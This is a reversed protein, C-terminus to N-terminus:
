FIFKLSFQEQRATGTGVLSANQGAITQGIEGFQHNVAQGTPDQADPACGPGPTTVPFVVSNCIGNSPNGFNPHNFINFIDARFQVTVRENAHFNKMLSFDGQFFGPARLSNRGANGLGVGPDGDFAPDVTYANVNYSSFPWAAGSLRTPQGTLDPRVTLGFFGPVLQPNVPGGSRAQVISSLQWGGLVGRVLANSGTMNPLSYVVSGTLNHRIDWDGSGRDLNPNSPDSFANFVNVMDDIEHSWTYNVEYNLRSTNHRLQVQLAHYSSNLIDADVNENAFGSYPRGSQTLVNAPNANLASFDVGSQMHHDENGTYNITLVTKPAVEQEIGFLWNISYPDKPNTPFASVNQTGAPLPPNAMPYVLPAQFVNVNYSEYAPINGVLGFGFHMPNYFTGGYAHIVTRGKGFPDYALGIRPAFDAGPASYPAQTTPYFSQTAINFNQMRNQGERWVTNYDYRLGLNFTLRRTAKWDDQVYFDLNSNNVGVFGPFGIKQLVFPRDNELDSFSGFDFTQQPRLWENLRNVRIQTGFTLDHAGAIKTVKDLVEFVNFPTVQNFTNPSPLSGLNTFFGNFGTLPTPTDSNTDSYFRQLGVSFDNILTGTFTHTEDFRGLQTRLYLPTVQGVNLGITQNTLSDDINYRFFIRDRDSVNYDVRISGSDERLTTPLAAPDYVLDSGNAPNADTFGPPVPCSAPQPIANCAAPLPAMQALVPQMAAVFQSRVYASPVEYLSNIATTRQRIGEYNAFFFLKNRIIPGGLNGGFQNMRLPVKPSTLTNTFYDQADLADNRFFEFAEGHYVNTGPKTIINMQPGLSHGVEASYGSNAFDIEQVADVSAQQLRSAENGETANYGNIDGRGAFQGDVTMNLGTLFNEQGNVSGQFFGTSNVSGPAIELFDTVDRGNTPLNGIQTSNLTTGATSSGTDVTTTTGTVEVTEKIAEVNLMLNVNVTAGANLVITQSKAEAFGAMKASISYNGIPLSTATFGGRGDTTLTKEFGTGINTITITAQSLAAGSSDTVFGTISGADFQASAFVSTSLILAIALFMRRYSLPLSFDPM